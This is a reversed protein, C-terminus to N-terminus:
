QFGSQRPYMLIVYDPETFPLKTEIAYSIRVKQQFLPLIHKYVDKCKPIMLM